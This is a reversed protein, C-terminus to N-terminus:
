FRSQHRVYRRAGEQASRAYRFWLESGLTPKQGNSIGVPNPWGYPPARGTSLSTIAAFNIMEWRSGGLVVHLVPAFDPGEWALADPHGIRIERGDSLHIEFPEFPRRDKVQRLDELRM